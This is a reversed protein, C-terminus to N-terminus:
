GNDTEEATEQEPEPEPEPQAAPEAQLEEAPEPANDRQEQLQKLLRLSGSIDPLEPKIPSQKLKLLSEFFDANAADQLDYYEQFLSVNEDMLRQYQLADRELVTWRTLKLNEELKEMVDIVLTQTLQEVKPQASKITVLSTFFDELRQRVSREPDVAVTPSGPQDTETVIRTQYGPKLTSIQRGLRSLLLTMGVLDPRVRTKLQAVEESIQVRVPLLGPDALGAILDSAALLTKAAGEFDNELVLKHQAISLLYEVEALKWGNEDRGYLEYLNQTSQLLDQQQQELGSLRGDTQGVSRALPQISTDLQARTPRQQIQAQLDGIQAQIQQQYDNFLQWAYFAAAALLSLFVLFLFLPFIRGSKAPKDSQQVPEETETTSEAPEQEPKDLQKM